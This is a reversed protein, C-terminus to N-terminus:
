QVAEPFSTARTPRTESGDQRTHRHVAVGGSPDSVRGVATQPADSRRPSSTKRAHVIRSEEPRHSCRYLAHLSRM